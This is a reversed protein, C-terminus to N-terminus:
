SAGDISETCRLTLWRGREEENVATVIELMRGSLDLRKETTVRSDYRMVVRHSVESNIQDSQWYERGNLPFVKCRHRREPIWRRDIGGEADRKDEPKLLTVVDRLATIQRAM